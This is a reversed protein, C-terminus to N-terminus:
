FIPTPDDDMMNVIPNDGSSLIAQYNFGADSMVTEITDPNFLQFKISETNTSSDDNGAEHFCVVQPLIIQEEIIEFTDVYLLKGWMFVDQEDAFQLKYYASTMKIQKGVHDVLEDQINVPIYKTEPDSVAEDSTVVVGYFGGSLDVQVIEGITEEDFSIKESSTLSTM